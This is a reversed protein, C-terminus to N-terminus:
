SEQAADCNSRVPSRGGIATRSPTSRAMRDLWDAPSSSRSPAYILLPPLPDQAMVNDVAVGGATALVVYGHSARWGALEGGPALAKELSAINEPAAGLVDAQMARLADRRQAPTCGAQEAALQTTFPSAPVGHGAAFVAFVSAAALARRRAAPRCLKTNM